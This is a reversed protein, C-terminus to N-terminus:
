DAVRFDAEAIIRHAARLGDITGIDIYIGDDFPLARVRMGDEVAAQFISGLPVESTSTAGGESFSRRALRGALYSHLFETFSAGWCACTWVRNHPPVEPKDLIELVRGAADFTVPGLRAPDDTPAVAVALDAGEREYLARLKALSEAPKVITDPMGMLVTADGIWPYAIDIASAMGIPEEQCLYAIPVGHSGGSGYFRMIDHKEPAIVVLVRDVRAARMSDLLYESVAKPRRGSAGNTEGIPLLEKACVCPALRRARGAAPVIGIAANSM